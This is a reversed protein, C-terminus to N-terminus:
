CVLLDFVADLNRLATPAAKQNRNRQLADLREDEPKGNDRAVSKWDTADAEVASVTSQSGKLSNYIEYQFIVTEFNITAIADVARILPEFLISIKSAQHVPIKNFVIRIKDKAVGLENLTLITTITDEQAKPDAVVPVIIMDFDDVASEFEKLKRILEKAESSGMDVILEDELAMIDVLSSFDDAELKIPSPLEDSGSNTSELVVIRADPMKPALLHKVLTTKGMNGSINCVLIKM